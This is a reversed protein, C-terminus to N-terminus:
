PTTHEKELLSPDAHIEDTAPRDCHICIRLHWPAPAEGPMFKPPHPPIEATKENPAM